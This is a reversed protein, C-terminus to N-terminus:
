GFQSMVFGVFTVHCRIEDKADIVRLFSLESLSLHCMSFRFHRFHICSSYCWLWYSCRISKSINWLILLLRPRSPTSYSFYPPWKRPARISRRFWGYLWVAQILSNKQWQNEFTNVTIRVHWCSCLVTYVYVRPQQFKLHAEPWVQSCVASRYGCPVLLSYFYSFIGEPMSLCEWYGSVPLLPFKCVMRYPVWCLPLCTRVLRVNQTTNLAKVQINTFSFRALVTASQSCLYPTNFAYLGGEASPATESKTWTLFHIILM